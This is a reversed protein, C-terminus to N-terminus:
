RRARVLAHGAIAAAGVVLHMASLTVKSGADVDLRFLPVISLVAIAAALVAWARFGDARFRELLWLGAAGILVWAVSAGLVDGLQMAVGDPEWGTIVRVPAGADGILFVALNAVLALGVGAATGALVRRRAATTRVDTTGTTSTAMTTTTTMKPEKPHTGISAWADIATPGSRCTASSKGLFEARVTNVEL